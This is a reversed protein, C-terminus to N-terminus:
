DNSELNLLRELVRHEELDELPIKAWLAISKSICQVELRSNPMIFYLARKKKLFNM